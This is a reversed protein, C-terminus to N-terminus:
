MLIKFVDILQKRIENQSDRMLAQRFPRNELFSTTIHSLLRRTADPCPNPAVLFLLRPLSENDFCIVGACPHQVAATKCHIVRTNFDEFFLSGLKERSQLDSELLTQMDPNDTLQGALFAILEDISETPHHKFLNFNGILDWILDFPLQFPANTDLHIAPKQPTHRPTAPPLERTSLITRITKALDEKLRSQNLPLSLQLVPTQIHHIPFTSLVLDIRNADLYCQQVKYVATAEVIDLQPVERTLRSQIYAALGIGEFCCVLCRIQHRPRQQNKNILSQFHMFVYELDRPTACLDFHEQLLRNIAQEKQARHTNETAVTGWDGYWTPIHYRLRTVLATIAMCLFGQIHLDLDYLEHDMRGFESILAEVFTCIEPPTHQQCTEIHVDSIDGIELVKLLLSLFAAEGKPLVGSFTRDTLNNLLTRSVADYPERGTPLGNEDILAGSKIRHRTLQLYFCLLAEGSMTFQYGLKNGVSAILQMIANTNTPFHMQNMLLRFQNIELTNITTDAPLYLSPIITHSSFLETLLQLYKVRLARENGELRIGVGKMRQLSCPMNELEQDVATLDNWITTDSSFFIYALESIKVERNQFILYLVILKRRTTRDLNEIYSEPKNIINLLEERPTSYTLIRVGQHPKRELAAGRPGLWKSLADLDRSVTRTGISFVAALDEM